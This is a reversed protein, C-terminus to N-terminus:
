EINRSAVKFGNDYPTDTQLHTYLDFKTEYTYINVYLTNYYTIFQSNFLPVIYIIGIIALLYNFHFSFFFYKSLLYKM